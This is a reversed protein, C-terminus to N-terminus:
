DIAEYVPLVYMSNKFKVVDEILIGEEAKVVEEKTDPHDGRIKILFKRSHVNFNDEYFKLLDEKTIKKLIEVMKIDRDFIYESFKIETWNIGVESSLKTKPELKKNILAKKFGEFVSPEMTKLIEKVKVDMFQQIREAVVATSFKDEQHAVTIAYGMYNNTFNNSGSVSYGLQQQTRLTDFIPETLIDEILDIMINTSFTAPGFQYYLYTLSNKSNAMLSDTKFCRQGKPLQLTRMKILNEEIKQLKLIDLVNKVLKIASDKLINGQVLAKVKAQKRWTSLFHKFDEFSIKDITKLLTLQSPQNNQFIHVM